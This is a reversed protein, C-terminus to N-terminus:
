NGNLFDARREERKSRREERASRRASMGTGLTEGSQMKQDAFAQDNAANSAQNKSRDELREARRERRRDMRSDGGNQQASGQMQQSSGQQSSGQMQPAGQPMSQPAGFNQQQGYPVQQQWQNFQGNMQPTPTIVQKNGGPTMYSYQGPGDMNVPTGYPIGNYGGAYAPTNSYFSQAPPMMQPPMGGGGSQANIQSQAAELQEPTVAVQQGNLNTYWFHNAQDRYVSVQTADPAIGLGPVTVQKGSPTILYQNGDAHRVVPYITMTIGNNGTQPVQAAVPNAAFNGVAALAIIIGFLKNM